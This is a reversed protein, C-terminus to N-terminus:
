DALPLYVSFCAGPEVNAAEVRGNMGAVLEAVLALGIGTGQTQRTIENEGRYFLDFIRGLQAKPIGPGFDRVSLRLERRDSPLNS